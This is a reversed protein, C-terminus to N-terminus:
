QFNKHYSGTSTNHKAYPGAHSALHDGEHRLLWLREHAAGINALLREKDSGKYHEILFSKESVEILRRAIEPDGIDCAFHFVALLEDLFTRRRHSATLAPSQCKASLTVSM